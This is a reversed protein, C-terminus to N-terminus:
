NNPPKRATFFRRAMLSKRTVRKKGPPKPEIPILPQKHWVEIRHTQEAIYQHFEKVRKELYEVYKANLQDAVDLLTAGSISYRRLPVIKADHGIFTDENYSFTPSSLITERSLQVERWIYRSQSYRTKSPVYEHFWAKHETSPQSYKTIEATTDIIRAQAWNISWVVMSKDQELPLHESGPCIGNFFGYGAVEYGHKAIFLNRGQINQIRNCVQCHGRHTAKKM